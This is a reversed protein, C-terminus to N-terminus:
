DIEVRRRIFGALFLGLLTLAAGWAATYSMSYYTRVFEGFFGARIMEVCHLFPLVLVAERFAPPLWSAMYFAGSLPVLIYLTVAVFREVFEFLESLSGVILALGLSIWALLLWGAYILHIRAPVDILEFLALISGILFFALTVGIFEIISRAIFLHLVTIKRHYLLSTNSRVAMMGHQIIHRTLLLPMYGTVVFPVVRIGHEYTPRITMWLILVAGCFLLPEGLVWLFGINNRGYRTALERMLLAWVVRGHRRMEALALALEMRLGIVMGVKGVVVGSAFWQRRRVSGVKDM